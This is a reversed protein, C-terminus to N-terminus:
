VSVLADLPPSILELDTARSITFLCDNHKVRIIEGSKPEEFKICDSPNFVMNKTGEYAKGVRGYEDKMRMLDTKDPPSEIEMVWIGNESQPDIPLESSAETLHFVGEEIFVGEMPNLKESGELHSCTANGNLLILSTRKNPHCHMSTKRKRVIHLMWIAVFENEFVLYEYGWPKTVIVNSYDFPDQKLRKESEVKKEKKYSILKSDSEKVKFSKIM